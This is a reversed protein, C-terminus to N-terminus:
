FRNMSYDDNEDPKKKDKRPFTVFSLNDDGECRKRLIADSEDSSVTIFLSLQVQSTKM